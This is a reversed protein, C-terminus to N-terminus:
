KVLRGDIYKSCVDKQSKRHRMVNQATNQFGCVPCKPKEYIKEM